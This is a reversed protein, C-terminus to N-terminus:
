AGGESARRSRRIAFVHWVLGGILLVFGAYVLSLGSDSVVLLVTYRGGEPDYSFQYLHYGGVHLPDNVEITKRALERDGDRVVLASKFDKIAPTPPQLRLWPRGAENWAEEDAYLAMLPLRLEPRGPQPQLVQEIIAGERVLRVSIEPLVPADPGEGYQALQVDTVVLAVDCLPLEIPEGKKWKVRRGVWQPMQRGPGGGQAAWVTLEWPEDPAVDYYEIWFKELSVDFPLRGIERRNEDFVEMSSEGQGIFMYGSPIRASGFVGRRFVGRRVHHTWESGWMAGVIVLVIGVHMAMLGLRRRLVSVAAIGIATLLAFLGWAAAGWPSLFWEKAAESGLFTPIVSLVALVLCGIVSGWLFFRRLSAVPRSDDAADM